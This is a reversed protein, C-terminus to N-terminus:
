TDQKVEKTWGFKWGVELNLTKLKTLYIWLGLGGFGTAQRPNMRDSIRRLALACAIPISFNKRCLRGFYRSLIRTWLSSFVCLNYPKLLWNDHYLEGIIILPQEHEHLAQRVLRSASGAASPGELVSSRLHERLVSTLHYIELVGTKQDLRLHDRLETTGQIKLGAIRKLKIASLESKIDIPSECGGDLSPHERFPFTSTTFDAVSQDSRWVCPERGSELLGGSQNEVCCSVMLLVRLALNFARHQDDLSPLQGNGNSRIAFYSTSLENRPASPREQLLEIIQFLDEHSRLARPADPMFSEPVYSGAVEEYYRFFPELRLLRRQPCEQGECPKATSCTTCSTWGWLIRCLTQFRADNVGDLPCLFTILDAM